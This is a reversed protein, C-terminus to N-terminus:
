HGMHQSSQFDMFQKIAELLDPENTTLVLVAGGEIEKTSYQILDKKENMIQTGPVVQAHIFFPKSFNGQSFEYQIDEIHSRIEDITKADSSDLAMIRIEGGTATDVFHHMIKTQNFGMAVDGREMMDSQEMMKERHKNMVSVDKLITGWGANELKMATLSTVCAGTGSSRIMLAMEEKCIVDEPLIGMKMQKRPSDITFGFAAPALVVGLIIVGIVSIAFVNKM